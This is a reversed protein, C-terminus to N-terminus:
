TSRRSGWGTSSSTTTPSRDGAEALFTSGLGLRAAASWVKEVVDPAATLLERGAEDAANPRRDHRPARRVEAGPGRSPGAYWRAGILVDPRGPAYFDGYDEGDVFLLDVGVDPGKAKLVDAIALLVAVGSAGDNAGPM